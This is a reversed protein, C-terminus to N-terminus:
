PTTANITVSCASSGSMYNGKAAVSATITATGVGKITATSGSVSIVKKNSSTFTIAGTSTSAAILGFKKGVVYTMPSTPQTFAVTPQIKVGSAQYNFGVPWTTNTNYLAGTLNAGTLNAGTFNVGSLDAGSFNAGSFNINTLVANTLNARSFNAQPGYAGSAQYDFNYPWGTNTDYIAGHLNAGTITAYILNAGTLNAGTLDTGTLDTGSLDACTLDACTLNAGTL